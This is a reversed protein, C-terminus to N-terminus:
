TRETQRGRWPCAQGVTSGGRHATTREADKVASSAHGLFGSRVGVVVKLSSNQIVGWSIKSWIAALRFASAAFPIFEVIWNLRVPSPPPSHYTAMLSPLASTVLPLAGVAFMVSEM